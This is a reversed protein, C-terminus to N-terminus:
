PSCLAFGTLMLQSLVNTYKVTVLVYYLLRHAPTSTCLSFGELSLRVSQAGCLGISFPTEFFHRCKFNKFQIQISVLDLFSVDNFYKTMLLKVVLWIFINIKSKISLIDYHHCHENCDIISFTATKKLCGKYPSSVRVAKM